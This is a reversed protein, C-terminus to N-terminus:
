ELPSSEIFDISRKGALSFGEVYKEGYQGVFNDYTTAPKTRCLHCAIDKLGKMMGLRPFELVIADYEEQRLSGGPSGLPGSLDASIGYNTAVVEPQKHVAISPTTHLAIADWVLQLRQSDWEKGDAERKLFDRAANAGDVEFRKDPSVLEGTFDWGLDHLIASFAHVEKDIDKLSDIKSAIVVGFLWSRVSHNYALDSLHTRAYSLAKTILPTDLVTVGGLVRTPLNAM